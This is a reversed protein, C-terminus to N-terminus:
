KATGLYDLVISQRLTHKSNLEGRALAEVLQFYFGGSVAARASSVAGAAISFCVRITIVSVASM